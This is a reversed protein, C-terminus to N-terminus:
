TNGGLTPGPRYFDPHYYGLGRRNLVGHKKLEPVYHATFNSESDIGLRNCIEKGTLPGERCILNYAAQHAETLPKTAPRPKGLHERRRRLEGILMPAVGAPTWNQMAVIDSRGVLGLLTEVERRNRPMPEGTQEWETADIRLEGVLNGVVVHFEPTVKEGPKPWLAWVSSVMEMILPTDFALAKHIADTADIPDGKSKGVYRLFRDPKRTSKAM